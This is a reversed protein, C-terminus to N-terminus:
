PRIEIPTGIPTHFYLEDMEKDTVAICGGTWDVWRHFKGIISNGNIMGHIKIDGGTPKHVKSANDIDTQNPYSIGLNKHCVSGPNKDNIKYFGEPTRGDGQYQKKGRPHFGLSIKYIKICESHSYAYLERKSKFVVINDVMVNNPFKKEPFCYYGVPILFLFSLIILFWKM